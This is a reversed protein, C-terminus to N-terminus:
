ATDAPLQPFSALSSPVFDHLPGKHLRNAHYGDNNNEFMVKWNFPYRTAKDPRPGETHAIDWNAAADAVATLRPGLAPADRDFNIFVFGLWVEVKFQPLRIRSKDFNLTKDM